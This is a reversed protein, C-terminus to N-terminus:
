FKFRLGLSSFTGKDQQKGILVGKTKHGIKAIVDFDKHVPLYTKLEVSYKSGNYDWWDFDVYTEWGTFGPGPLKWDLRVSRQDSSAAGASLSAGM